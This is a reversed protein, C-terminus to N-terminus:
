CGTSRASASRARTAKRRAILRTGINAGSPSVRTHLTTSGPISAIGSNRSTAQPWYTNLNSRQRIAENRWHVANAKVNHTEQIVADFLRGGVGDRRSRETVILDDLYICKGKWTSYMTFYIAAGVIFTDASAVTNPVVINGYSITSNNKVFQWERGDPTMAREGLKFEGRTTITQYVSQFSIQNM